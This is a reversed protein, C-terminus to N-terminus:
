IKTLIDIEENISVIFQALLKAGEKIDKYNVKEVPTHMYALPFSILLTHISGGYTQMADTDTGTRGSLPEISFSINEEKAIKILRETWIKSMSGGIAIAPGNGTPVSPNDGYHSKAFTADIVIGMQPKLKKKIAPIAPGGGYEERINAVGVITHYTEMKELRKFIETIFAVGGRNDISKGVWIDKQIEEIDPYYGIYDGIKVRKKIEKVGLGTDIFLEDTKVENKGKRYHPPISSVIGEILGTKTHILVKQAPLIVPDIGGVSTFKIYEDEIGTVIMGIEDYHASIAIITNKKGKKYVYVNNFKDKETKYGMEKWLRSVEDTITHENGTIGSLDSLYKLPHIDIM